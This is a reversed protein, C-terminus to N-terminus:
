LNGLFSLLYHGIFAVAAAVSGAAVPNLNFQPVYKAIVYVVGGCIAAGIAASLLSAAWGIAWLFFFSIAIMLLVFLFIFLIAVM